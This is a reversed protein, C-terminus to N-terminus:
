LDNKKNMFSRTRELTKDVVYKNFLDSKISCCYKDIPKNKQKEHNNKQISTNKVIIPYTNTNLM